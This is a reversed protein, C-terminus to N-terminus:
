AGAQAPQSITVVPKSIKKILKNMDIEKKRQSLSPSVLVMHINKTKKLVENLSSLADGIRIHCNIDSSIDYKVSLERLKKEAAAKLENEKEHLIDKATKFEGAEAFVAASMIDEYAEIVRRNYIMLVSMDMKLTKALEAVYSFGSDSDEGGKTVFLLKERM